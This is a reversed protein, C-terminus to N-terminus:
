DRTIGLAALASKAIPLSGDGAAEVEARLRKSAKESTMEVLVGFVALATNHKTQKERTLAGYDVCTLKKSTRRSVRRIRERAKDSLDVIEGDPLRRLGVGRVPDFVMRSERQVIARARDMAQRGVTQVNRGIVKTLDAYPVVVTVAITELVKALAKSDSSLRFDPTTNM